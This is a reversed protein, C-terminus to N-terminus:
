EFGSLGNQSHGLGPPAPPTRRGRRGPSRGRQIQAPLPGTDPLFPGSPPLLSRQAVLEM